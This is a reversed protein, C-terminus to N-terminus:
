SEKIVTIYARQMTFIDWYQQNFKLFMLDEFVIPSIKARHATLFVKAESWLQEVEAASESIYDLNHYKSCVDTGELESAKRKKRNLMRDYFYESVNETVFADTNNILLFVFAEGEQQTMNSEDRNKIKIVGSSLEPDYLKESHPFIFDKGFQNKVM